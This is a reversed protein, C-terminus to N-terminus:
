GGAATRGRPVVEDPFRSAGRGLVAAAGARRARGHVVPGASAAPEVHGTLVPWGDDWVVEDAFTERGLM